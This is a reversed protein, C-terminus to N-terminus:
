RSSLLSNAALWGELTGGDIYQGKASVVKLVGGQRVYDNIPDTIYYEEARESAAYAVIEQLLEPSIVYKSVNISNSPADEPQPKEVIHSFNNHEDLALVGYHATEEPAITVGLMASGSAPTGAILRAVESSDDSNYIFDDGMLVVVSEDPEIFGACFAVPIATGYAVNTPQVVYHFKIGQPPTIAPIHQSKNNARLYTELEQNRGYYAELQSDKKNVVFFIETIGAKICDEVVYDVIPRNGIPLM